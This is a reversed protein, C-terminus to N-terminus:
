AAAEEDTEADDDDAQWLVEAPEDDTANDELIAAVDATTKPTEVASADGLLEQELVRAKEAQVELSLALFESIAAEKWAIAPLFYLRKGKPIAHPLKFGKAGLVDGVGNAKTVLPLLGQAHLNELVESASVFVNGSKKVIEIWHEELAKAMKKRSGAAKGGGVLRPEGRHYSVERSAKTEIKNSKTM